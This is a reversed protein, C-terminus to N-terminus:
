TFIYKYKKRKNYYRLIYWTTIDISKSTFTFRHNDNVHKYVIM